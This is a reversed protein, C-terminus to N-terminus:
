SCHWIVVTTTNIHLHTFNIYTVNELKIPHKLNSKLTIASIKGGVLRTRFNWHEYVEVIFHIFSLKKNM